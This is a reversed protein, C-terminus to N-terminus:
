WFRGSQAPPELGMVQERKRDLEDQVVRQIKNPSKSFREGPRRRYCQIFVPCFKARKNFALTIDPRGLTSGLVGGAMDYGGLSKDEDPLLGRIAIMGDMFVHAFNLVEPTLPVGHPFFHEKLVGMGLRHQHALTVFNATDTVARAYNSGTWSYAQMPRPSGAIGMCRSGANAIVLDGGYAVANTVIIYIYCAALAGREPQVREGKAAPAILERELVEAWREAGELTKVFFAAVKQAPPNAEVFLVKRLADWDIINAPSDAVFWLEDAEAYLIAPLVMHPITADVPGWNRRAAMEKLRAASVTYRDSGIVTLAQHLRQARGQKGLSDPGEDKWKSVAQQSVGLLAAVQAQTLDVERLLFDLTDADGEVGPEQESADLTSDAMAM